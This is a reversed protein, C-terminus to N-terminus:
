IGYITTFMTDENRNNNDQVVEIQIYNLSNQTRNPTRRYSGQPYVFCCHELPESVVKLFVLMVNIPFWHSPIPANVQVTFFQDLMIYLPVTRFVVVFIGFEKPIGRKQMIWNWITKSPPFCIFVTCAIKM